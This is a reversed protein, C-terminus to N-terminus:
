PQSKKRRAARQTYNVIYVSGEPAGYAKELAELLEPSVGRHGSEIASLTGKTYSRGTIDKLRALIDTQKLGLLERVVRMPFLPPVKPERQSGQIM